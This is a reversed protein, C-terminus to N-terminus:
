FVSCFHNTKISPSAQPFAAEDEKKKTALKFITVTSTIIHTM